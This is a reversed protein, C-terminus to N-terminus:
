LSGREELLKGLDDSDAHHVEHEAEHRFAHHNTPPHRLGAVQQEAGDSLTDRTVARQEGNRGLHDGRTEIVATPQEAAEREPALECRRRARGRTQSWRQRASVSVLTARGTGSARQLERMAPRGDVYASPIERPAM